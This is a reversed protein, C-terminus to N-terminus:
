SSRRIQCHKASDDNTLIVGRPNLVRVHSLKKMVNLEYHVKHGLLGDKIFRRKEIQKVAYVEGSSKSSLKYVMAFAGKGIYGVVNYKEGGNWLM